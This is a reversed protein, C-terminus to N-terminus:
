ERMALATRWLTIREEYVNLAAHRLVCRVGFWEEGPVVEEPGEFM